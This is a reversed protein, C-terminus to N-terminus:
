SFISVTIESAVYLLWVFVLIFAEPRTLRYRTKILTLLIISAVVMWGGAVYAIIPPFNLPSIMAVLGIVITADALVSGFIDGVALAPKKAKIAQVSFFLEPITTGLSVILIGVLVPSIGLSHALGVASGVTFHAGVLLLGMSLVLLLSNKLRGPSRSQHTSIGVNKSFIFFYFILGIVILVAGEARTFRGDIGLLLPIAMFLPYVLLKRWLSKEVHFGNKGAVLILIAFILTLDAVNSGFLLGVGFDPNGRLAANVAIITEPLISIFSVVVFGVIYRSLHFGEAIRESYHTAFGAAQIVVFLSLALLFVNEM